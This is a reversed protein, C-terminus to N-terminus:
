RNDLHRLVLRSYYRVRLHASPSTPAHGSSSVSAEFLVAYKYDLICAEDRITNGPVVIHECDNILSM